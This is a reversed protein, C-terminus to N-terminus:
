LTYLPAITLVFIVILAIVALKRSKSLQSVDDLSGPHPYQSLFFVLIAMLWAGIVVLALIAIYSLVTRAKDGLLVRAVHGGDLMGTPLLNLMTVIMGIYGAYAVPHLLIIDGQGIPPFMRVLFDFLLPVQLFSANPPRTFTLQSLQVGGITVFITIIFGTVPGSMGLDFLADRNPAMSKQQIVAGFTGLPPIGPIFYPYTAEVGHKNAALKHAMEHAGLIAIMAATFMVAVILPNYQTWNLSLLYGTVLLTAITAVFLAINTTKRSPKVSPKPVIQLVHKDERKRFFPTLGMPDLQKYLRLFAQKSNPQLTVFFTPIDHEIFGEEITFETQVLNHIQQYQTAQPPPTETTM